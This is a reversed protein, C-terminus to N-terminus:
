LHCRAACMFLFTVLIVGREWHIHIQIFKTSQPPPVLDRFRSPALMPLVGHRDRRLRGNIENSLNGHARTRDAVTLIQPQEHDTPASFKM